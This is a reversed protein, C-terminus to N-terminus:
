GRRQKLYENHGLGMFSVQGDRFGFNPSLFTLSCRCHPHLGSISPNSEGKKHYSFKIESLKWVRPTIKDPM